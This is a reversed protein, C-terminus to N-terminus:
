FPIDNTYGECGHAIIKAPPRENNFKLCIEKQKDFHLCNVCTRTAMRLEHAICEALEKAVAKIQKENLDRTSM